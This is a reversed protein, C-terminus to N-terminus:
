KWRRMPVTHVPSTLTASLVFIGLTARFFYSPRVASPSRTYSETVNGTQECSTCCMAIPCVEWRRWNREQLLDASAQCQPVDVVGRVLGAPIFLVSTFRKAFFNLKFLRAQMLAQRLGIKTRVLLNNQRVQIWRLSIKPCQFLCEVLQLRTTLQTRVFRHPTLRPSNEDQTQNRGRLTRRTLMWFVKLERETLTSFVAQRLCCTSAWCSPSRRATATTKVFLAQKRKPFRRQTASRYRVHTGFQVCRQCTMNTAWMDVANQFWLFRLFFESQMKLAVSLCQLLPLMLLHVHLNEKWFVSAAPM